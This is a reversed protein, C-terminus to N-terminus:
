TALVTTLIDADASVALARGALDEPVEPHRPNIRALRARPDARAIREM